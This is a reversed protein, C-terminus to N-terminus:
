SLWTTQTRLYFIYFCLVVIVILIIFTAATWYTNRTVVNNAIVSQNKVFDSENKIEKNLSSVANELDTKAGILQNLYQNITIDNQAIVGQMIEAKLNAYTLNSLTVKGSTIIYNRAADYDAQTLTTCSTSTCVMVNGAQVKIYNTQNFTEAERVRLTIRDSTATNNVNQTNDLRIQYSVVSSTDTSKQYLSFTTVYLGDGRVNGFTIPYYVKYTRNTSNEVLVMGPDFKSDIPSFDATVQLGAVNATLVVTVLDGNMYSSKDASISQVIFASSFSACMALMLLLIMLIRM